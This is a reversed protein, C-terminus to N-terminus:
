SAARALALSFAVEEDVAVAPGAPGGQAATGGRLEIELDALVCLAQELATRDSRKARAVTKKALWPPAKLRSAVEQEPVGRELLSAARHVERLRRALAFLLRGPREGHAELAEALGLAAPLDGAVVADALDYAQPEADGAALEAVDEATVGTGPHLALRLKELERALRQQGPGVASILEKAVDSDLELGEERARETVWKPLQWPKPAPCDRVEGGAAKVAKLLQKLPRGRVILVLVTDPPMDALVQELPGLQSAKWAGADEVLLYRTGGTFTLAALEAAVESPDGTRADLAELGGPGREAEARRRVRARWADIKENDDGAVLYVPKLDAV